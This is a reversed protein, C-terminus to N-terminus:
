TRSGFLKGLIGKRPAAGPAGGAPTPASPPAPSTPATAPGPPPCEPIPAALADPEVSEPVPPQGGRGSAGVTAVVLDVLARSGRTLEAFQIGMGGHPPEERPSPPATWRVLGRGRIVLEGSALAVDFAVETGPPLVERGRVFMGGRSLNLAWGETFDDVSGYALRTELRTAVRPERRTDVPMPDM